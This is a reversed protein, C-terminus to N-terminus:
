LVPEIEYVSSVAEHVFSKGAFVVIGISVIKGLFIIGQTFARIVYRGSTKRPQLRLKIM